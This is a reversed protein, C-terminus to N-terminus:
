LIDKCGLESYTHGQEPICFLHYPLILTEATYYDHYNFAGGGGGGSFSLNWLRTIRIRLANRTM